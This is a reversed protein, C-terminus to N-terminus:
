KILMMKGFEVENGIILKYYYIGNPLNTANLKTQHEGEYLYSDVLLSVEQGLSNFIKLKVYAPKELYYKITASGSFPNPFSQSVYPSKTINDKTDLIVGGERYITIGYNGIWLNRYDDIFLETIYNSMLPTNSTNFVDFYNNEFRVLGDSTAFWITNKNVAIDYISIGPIISNNIGFDEKKFNIWSNGDNLYLGSMYTAVWLSDNIFAIKRVNTLEIGNPAFNLSIWKEGDFREIEDGTNFWLNGLNDYIIGKLTKGNYEKSDIWDNGNFKYIRYLYSEFEGPQVYQEVWLSGDFDNFTKYYTSIEGTPYMSYELTESNSVKLIKDNCGLWKNNDSDLAVSYVTEVPLISDFYNDTNWVNDKMITVGNSTAIWNISDKDRNINLIVNDSIKFESFEIKNWTIGDFQVLKNDIIMWKVNKDIILKTIPKQFLKQDNSTYRFTNTGDYRYLGNNSAIWYSGDIDKEIDYCTEYDIIAVFEGNIYKNLGWGSAVLFENSDLVALDLVEDDTWSLNYITLSDFDFKAFGDTICLWLNNDNDFVIRKINGYLKYDEMNYIEFTDNLIRVVYKATSFWIKGNSDLAFSTINDLPLSSNEKTFKTWQNQDYKLLADDDAIWVINNKGVFVKRTISNSVDDFIITENSTKNFKIIDRGTIRINEGDDAIDTAYFAKFNMWEPNQSHLFEINLLIILFFLIIFKM